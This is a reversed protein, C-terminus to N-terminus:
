SEIMESLRSDIKRELIMFKFQKFTIVQNRLNEFYLRIKQRGQSEIFIFKNKLEGMGFDDLNKGFLMRLEDLQNKYKYFCDELVIVNVMKKCITDKKLEQVLDVINKEIEEIQFM